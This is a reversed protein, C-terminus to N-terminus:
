KGDSSTQIGRRQQQLDTLGNTSTIEHPGIM